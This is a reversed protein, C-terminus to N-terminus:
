TNQNHMSEVLIRRRVIPLRFSPIETMFLYHNFHFVYIFRTLMLLSLGSYLLHRKKKRKFRIIGDRTISVNTTYGYVSENRSNQNQQQYNSSNLIPISSPPSAVTTTMPEGSSYISSSNKSQYAYDNKPSSSYIPNHEHQYYTM